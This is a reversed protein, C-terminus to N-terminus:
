FIRKFVSLTLPILTKGSEEFQILMIKTNFKAMFWLLLENFDFVELMYGFRTKMSTSFKNCNKDETSLKIFWKYAM